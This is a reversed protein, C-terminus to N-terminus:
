MTNYLNTEIASSRRITDSVLSNIFEVLDYSNVNAQLGRIKM